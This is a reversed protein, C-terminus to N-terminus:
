PLPELLTQGPPHEDVANGAEGLDSRTLYPLRSGSTPVARLFLRSRTCM